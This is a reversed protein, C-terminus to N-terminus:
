VCNTVFIYLQNNNSANWVQKKNDERVAFCCLIIHVNYVFICMIPHASVCHLYQLEIYKDKFLYNKNVWISLIRCLCLTDVNINIPKPFDKCNKRELFIQNLSSKIYPKWCNLWIKYRYYWYLHHKGQYVPIGPRKKVTFPFDSM